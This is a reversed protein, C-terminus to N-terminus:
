RSSVYENGTLPRQEFVLDFTEAPEPHPVTFSASGTKGEITATIVAYGSSVARVLGTASVTAVQSADSSFQVTRGQLENGAADLAVAMVQRTAGIELITATPSVRVIAVPAPGVPGDNSDSCGAILTGIFAVLAFRVRKKASM